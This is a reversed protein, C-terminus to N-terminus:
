AGEFTEAGVEELTIANFDAVRQVMTQDLFTMWGESAKEDIIRATYAIHRTEDNLLTDLILQLRGRNDEPCHVRIVPALLLQHIRTRIEGINMQVIEDLVIETSSPAQMEPRDRTGYGPSISQLLPRLSSEVAGPFALDVMSLYYRAHRSEDVAHLRVQERIDSDHIRSVLDWLKRSGDGEKSANAILSQALWEPDVALDRYTEGYWAEGYPPPSREVANTLIAEYAVLDDYGQDALASLTLQAVFAAM